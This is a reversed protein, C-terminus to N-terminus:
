PQRIELRYVVGDAGPPAPDNDCGARCTDVFAAWVRGQADMASDLFHGVGNCARDEGPCDGAVLVDSPNLWLGQVAGDYVAMFPRWGSDLAMAAVAVTDNGAAISSLAVDGEYWQAPESWSDGGDQSSAVWIGNSIWTAWVTGDPALALDVEHDWYALLPTTQFKFSTAPGGISVWRWTLGADDSIAVGPAGCPAAPLLVRGSDLGKGHGHLGGCYARAVGDPGTPEVQTPDLGFFVLKRLPGFTMGGDRSVACAADSWENVCYYVLNDYGFTPGSVPPATFVSQHDHGGFPHGCGAPNFEWNDGLDDTWILTSCVTAQLDSVFLRGTRPDQHLLPDNSTPPLPTGALVPGHGTWTAGEDLSRWMAPLSSSRSASGAIFVGGQTAITPEFFDGVVLRTVHWTANSAVPAPELMPAPETPSEPATPAAAPAPAEGASEPAKACGALAVVLVLIVVKM